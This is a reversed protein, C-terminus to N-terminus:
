ANGVTGGFRGESERLGEEAEMRELWDAAQRALLDLVRLDQEAPPRPTRYHTPLMGGFHRSRAVLPPSQAARIGAALLLDLLAKGAFIPSTTVDEVVVRVGREL